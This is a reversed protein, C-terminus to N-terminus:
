MHKNVLEGVMGTQPAFRKSIGGIVAAEAGQQADASGHLVLSRESDERTARDDGLGSPGTSFGVGGHRHKRSNRLRIVDAVSLNQDDEDQEVAATPRSSSALGPENTIEDNSIASDLETPRQRYIKRKKGPRFVVQPVDEPEASTTAMNRLRLRTSPPQIPPATSLSQHLWGAPLPLKFIFPSCRVALGLGITQVRWRSVLETNRLQCCM